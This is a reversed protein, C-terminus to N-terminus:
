EPAGCLAGAAILTSGVPLVTMGDSVGFAVVVTGEPLTPEQGRVPLVQVWLPWAVAVCAGALLLTTLRGTRRRTM